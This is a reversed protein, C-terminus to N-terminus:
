SSAVARTRPTLRMSRRSSIERSEAKVRRRSDAQVIEWQRGQTAPWAM